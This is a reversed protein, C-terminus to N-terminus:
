TSSITITVGLFKPVNLAICLIGWTTCLNRLGLVHSQLVCVVIWHGGPGCGLVLILILGHLHQVFRQTLTSALRPCCSASRNRVVKRTTPSCSASRKQVVMRALTVKSVSSNAIPITTQFGPFFKLKIFM